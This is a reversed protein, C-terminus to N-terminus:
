GSGADAWSGSIDVLSYCRVTVAKSRSRGSPMDGAGKFCVSKFRMCCRKLVRSPPLTSYAGAMSAFVRRM